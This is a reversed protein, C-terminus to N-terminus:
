LKHNINLRSCIDNFVEEPAQEGNIETLLGRERYFDLVPEVEEDYWAMREEIAAETDDGRGRDLLRRKAEESSVAIHFVRMDTKWDFFAMAEDMLRAEYVKRPSGEIVIGSVNEEEKLALFRDMWLKFVVPTPALEGQQIIERIGKGMYDDHEARERLLDGSSIRKWSPRQEM